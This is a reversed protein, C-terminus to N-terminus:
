PSPAARMKAQNYVWAAVMGNGLNIAPDSGRKGFAGFLGLTILAGGLWVPKDIGYWQGPFRVDVFGAIGAGGLTLGVDMFRDGNDAIKNKLNVLQRKASIAQKVAEEKSIRALQM